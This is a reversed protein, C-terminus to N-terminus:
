DKAHVMNPLTTPKACRNTLFTLGLPERRDRLALDDLSMIDMSEVWCPSGDCASVGWYYVPLRETNTDQGLDFLDHDLIFILPIGQGQSPHFEVCMDLM